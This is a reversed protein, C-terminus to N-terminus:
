VYTKGNEGALGVLGVGEFAPGDTRGDHQRQCRTIEHPHDRIHSLQVREDTLPLSTAATRNQRSM